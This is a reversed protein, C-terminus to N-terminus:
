TCNSISTYLPTYNDHQHKAYPNALGREWGAVMAPTQTKNPLQIKLSWQTAHRWPNEKTVGTEYELKRRGGGGGGRGEGWRERKGKKKREKRVWGRQAGENATPKAKFVLSLSRWESSFSPLFCCNNRNTWYIESSLLRLINWIFHERCWSENWETWFQILFHLM